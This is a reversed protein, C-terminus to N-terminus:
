LASSDHIWYSPHHIPIDFRREFVAVRELVDRDQRLWFLAKRQNHLVALAVFVRKSSFGIFFSSFPFM